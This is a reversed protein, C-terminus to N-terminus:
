LSETDAKEAEPPQLDTSYPAAERPTGKLHSLQPARKSAPQEEGIAKSTTETFATGTQPLHSSRDAEM